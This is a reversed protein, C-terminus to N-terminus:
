SSIKTACFELIKPLTQQVDGELYLDTEDMYPPPSINLVVFKGKPNLERYRHLLGSDDAKLGVTVIFDTDILRDDSFVREIDGRKIPKTGAEEHLRDLNETAIDFGYMSQLKALASHAKTTGQLFVKQLEIIKSRMTEPALATTQIFNDVVTSIEIGLFQQLRDMDPTGAGVSIGAGTYVIVKRSALINAVDEISVEVPHIAKDSHQASKKHTLSPKRNIKITCAEELDFDGFGCYYVKDGRKTIYPVFKSKMEESMRPLPEPYVVYAYIKKPDTSLQFGKRYQYGDHGTIWNFGLNEPKVETKTQKSPKKPQSVTM